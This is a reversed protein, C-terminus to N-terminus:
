VPERARRIATVAANMAELEDPRMGDLPGSRVERKEVLLGMLKARLQIAAVAAGANGKDTALELAAQAEKMADEIGYAVRKALKAALVNRLEGIRAAVRPSRASYSSCKKISPDDPSMGHAASYAATLTAGNAVGQAFAEQKATLRGVSAVAVAIERDAVKNLKVKVNRRKIWGCKKAHKSVAATSCGFERALDSMTRKGAKYHPELADWDVAARAVQGPKPGPKARPAASVPATTGMTM